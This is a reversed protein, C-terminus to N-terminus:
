ARGHRHLRRRGDDPVAGAAPESGMSLLLHFLSRRIRGARHDADSQAIRRREFGIDPHSIRQRIAHGAARESRQCRYNIATDIMNLGREIGAALVTVYRADEADDYDGLYTGMGISSVCIGDVVSRYFQPNLSSAFRRAFRTTGAATAHGSISDGLSGLKRSTPRSRPMNAVPYQSITSMALAGLM